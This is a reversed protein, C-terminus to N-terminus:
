GPRPILSRAGPIEVAEIIELGVEIGRIGIYLCLDELDHAEPQLEADGAEAHVCDGEYDRGLTRVDFLRGLLIVHQTRETFEQLPAFTVGDDQRFGIHQRFGVHFIEATGAVAHVHHEIEVDVLVQEVRQCGGVRPWQCFRQLGGLRTGGGRLPAHEQAVVIFEIEAAQGLLM